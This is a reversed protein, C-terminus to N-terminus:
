GPCIVCRHSLSSLSRILRANMCSLRNARGASKVVELYWTHLGASFPVPPKSMRAELVLPALTRWWLDTPRLTSHAVMWYLPAHMKAM